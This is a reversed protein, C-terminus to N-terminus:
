RCFRADDRTDYIKKCDVVAGDNERHATSDSVDARLCRSTRACRKRTADRGIKLSTEM